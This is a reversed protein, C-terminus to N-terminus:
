VAPIIVRTNPYFRTKDKDDVRRSLTALITMNSMKDLIELLNTTGLAVGLPGYKKKLVGLTTETRDPDDFYFVESMKDKGYMIKSAEEKDGEVDNLAVMELILYDVAVVPKDNIKKQACKEIMLKYQGAPPAIYNPLDEIDTLNRALVSALGSQALSKVEQEAM